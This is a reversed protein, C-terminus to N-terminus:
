LVSVLLKIAMATVMLIAVMFVAFRLLVANVIVHVLTHVIRAAVYGVALYSFVADVLGVSLALLSLVYFLIPNEHLNSYQRTLVALFKPEQGDSYTKYFAGPARGAAVSTLRKFIMVYGFGLTWLVLVINALVLTQTATPM